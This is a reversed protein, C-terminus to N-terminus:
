TIIPWAVTCSPIESLGVAEKVCCHSRSLRDLTHTHIPTNSDPIFKIHRNKSTLLFTCQWLTHTHTHTRPAPTHNVICNQMLIAPIQALSKYITGRPFSCTFCYLYVVFMCLYVTPTRWNLASTTSTNLSISLLLQQKTGNNLGHSYTKVKIERDKEVCAKGHIDVPM